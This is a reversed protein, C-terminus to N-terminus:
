GKQYRLSLLTAYSSSANSLCSYTKSIRLGLRMERDKAQGNGNGKAEYRSIMRRDVHSPEDRGEIQFRQFRPLYGDRHRQSWESLWGGGDAAWVTRSETWMIHLPPKKRV